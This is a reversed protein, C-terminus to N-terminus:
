RKHTPLSPIRPWDVMAAIAFFIAMLPVSLSRYTFWYHQYSHDATVLNWLLPPLATLLCLLATSLGTRFDTVVKAITTVKNYCPILVAIKM